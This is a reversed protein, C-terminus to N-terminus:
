ETENKFVIFKSSVYRLPFLFLINVSTAILYHFGLWILLNFLLNNCVFFIGIHIIFKILKEHKHEQQFLYKLQVFYMMAYALLYVIFFSISKNLKLFDILVFLGAFVFAYSIISILVYKYFHGYRYNDILRCQKINKFYKM